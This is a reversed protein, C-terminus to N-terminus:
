GVGVEAIHPHLFRIGAAALDRKLTDLADPPCHRAFSSIMYVECGPVFEPAHHDAVGCAVAAAGGGCSTHAGIDSGIDSGTDSGTDSSTDSGTDSSVSIAFSSADRSIAGTAATAAVNHPTAAAVPFSQLIGDDSGLSGALHKSALYALHRLHTALSVSQSLGKIDGSRAAGGGGGDDYSAPPSSQNPYLKILHQAVTRPSPPLLGFATCIESDKAM